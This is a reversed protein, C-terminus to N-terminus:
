YFNFIIKQMGKFVLHEDVRAEKFIKTFKQADGGTLIIEMKHSVVECYLTKLYGYTIADQSNKPLKELDIDFNFEYDLANSIKKYTQSMASVGAYIFGGEFVGGRKVDVTIASGADIIIGSEIAELAMMRDVGMTKYYKTKDLHSSIEIWNPLNKLKVEVKKNVSIYYIKHKVESPDFRKVDKKFSDFESLFHYSTNGIDCLLM